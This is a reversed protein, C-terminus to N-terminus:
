RFDLRPSRRFVNAFLLSSEAALLFIHFRRECIDEGMFIVAGQGFKECYVCVCDMDNGTKEMM